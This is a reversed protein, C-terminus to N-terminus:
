HTSSAMKKLHRLARKAATCKAIRKNRGVGVFVGKEFVEVKVRVKGSLTTEAREFHTTQPEMELLERIPSKPVHTSFYEIEPKMITFYVRWVTDLSMGSDLYIAGAVSEFVDGLAKPVEIEETEECEDEELYYGELEHFTSCNKRIEVFKNIVNFLGPSIAKFYKYFEYKIALSAFFSNNVLASRLDTLTGPSHKQPDEYLHRTILYDLVADGLFELRQYCDTLRNYHYSAHTFAQLLYSKDRFTYQIKKEFQDYGTLLRVLKVEYNPVHTLLPSPPPALPHYERKGESSTSTPLVHLGLWSMFLLAGRQGCSILFCGILAEVCDAISKDPISHRKLLSYALPPPLDNSTTGYNFRSVINNSELIHKRIQSETMTRLDGFAALDFSSTGGSKEILSEELGEPVTYCPPLWNENPEFKTAVMMNGLGKLKGLRYLNLNSIQKSRLFSLKGEHINPYKCFLFTTIAYKLFSDGVTELRELNIGDNANSMTLAQLILSPSPGTHTALDPQEDFHIRFMEESNNESLNVLERDPLLEGFPLNSTPAIAKTEKPNTNASSIDLLDHTSAAEPEKTQKLLPFPASSLLMEIKYKSLDQDEPATEDKILEVEKVLDGLMNLSSTNNAALTEYELDAEDLLNQPAQEKPASIETTPDCDCLWESLHPNDKAQCTSMLQIGSGEDDSIMDLDELSDYLDKNYTLLDSSLGEVNLQGPGSLYGLGPINSDLMCIKSNEDWDSDWTSTEFNSPSGVRFCPEGSGNSQADSNWMPPFMFTSQITFDVIDPAIHKTPDFTDIVLDCEPPEYSAPSIPFTSMVSSPEDDWGTVSAQPVELIDEAIRKTKKSPREEEVPQSKLVEALTWGFDLMPWKFGSPLDVVGVGIELAVKRRMQEALLLSNLRYLICPLCVAKRWLSAPFPHIVCLEPVLIQKQQLNERKAKKTQESSTPLTVGKRNVYRPTLLNLRASTHDVDLLPQEGNVVEISYKEMYYEEFTRPGQAPFDSRPTLNHCIEAVYFFQLKDLNRYWPIVVADTYKSEEFVFDLREEKPIKSLQFNKQQNIKDVFPWDIEYSGSFLNTPVIYISCEQSTSGWVMPYKELQLVNSFTYHHFYLLRELQVETLVLGEQVLQVEVTVEGSRTFLPFSCVPLIPKSTLIGFGQPTQAPDDIKRGRTNQEEPISCTLAMHVLYLYSPEGPRPQSDQLDSAVQKSYHQRRKKTGSLAPNMQQQDEEHTVLDEEFKVAEKGTPLLNDDLEGKQHLQICTQLAAAMKALHRTSMFEGKVPTKLPSNIPLQITCQFKSSIKEIKWYPTLRTFTDSPLKACYKNVLGIASSLSVKPPSPTDSTPPLPQYIPRLHDVKEAKLEEETPMENDECRELLIKEYCKFDQLLDIHSQNTHATDQLLYLSDAVRAKGRTTLYTRFNRPADFLVSLNCKPVDLSELMSFPTVLLNCERSRFKQLVEEQKYTSNEPLSLNALFNPQLFSFEPITQSVETLWRSLVYATVRQRVFILGCLNHADDTPNKNAPPTSSTVKRDDESQQQSLSLTTPKEAGGSDEQPQSSEQHNNQNNSEQHNNELTPLNEIVQTQSCSESQCSNVNNEEVHDNQSHTTSATKDENKSVTDSKKLITQFEESEEWVDIKLGNDSSDGPPQSPAESPVMPGNADCVASDQSNEPQPPQQTDSVPAVPSPPPKFKALIKLLNTLKSTSNETIPGTKADILDQCLCAVMQLRTHIVQLLLIPTVQASVLNDQKYSIEALILDLARRACWPGLHRLIRYTELLYAKSLEEFPPADNEGNESLILSAEELISLSDDLIQLLDTFDPPQATYPQSIALIERPKHALKSIASLDCAAVVPCNLAAELAIIRRHLQGPSSIGDLLVPCFALLRINPWFPLEARVAACDPLHCQDLVVLNVQSGLLSVAQAPTCVVVEASESGECSVKLDTFEAVLQHQRSLEEEPLILLALFPLGAARVQSSLEKVAMVTLFFKSSESSLCAVLSRKRIADLLEVQYERSIFTKTNVNELQHFRRARPFPAGSKIFVM